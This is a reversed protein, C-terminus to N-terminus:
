DHQIGFGPRTPQGSDPQPVIGLGKTEVSATGLEIIDDVLPAYDVTKETKEM